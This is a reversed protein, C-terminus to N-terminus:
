LYKVLKPSTVEQVNKKKQSYMLTKGERLHSKTEYNCVVIKHSNPAPPPAYAALTAAVVTGILLILSSGYPVM